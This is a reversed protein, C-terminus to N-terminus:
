NVISKGPKPGIAASKMSALWCSGIRPTPSAEPSWRNWSMLRGNATSFPRKRELVEPWHVCTRQIKLPRESRQWGRCNSRAPELISLAHRVRQIDTSSALTLALTRRAWAVTEANQPNSGPKLIAELQAEAEAM